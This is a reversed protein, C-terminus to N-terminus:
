AREPSWRWGSMRHSYECAMPLLLPVSASYQSAMSDVGPSWPPNMQSHHSWPSTWRSGSPPVRQAYPPSKPSWGCSSLKTASPSTQGSRRGFGAIHSCLRSAAGIPM